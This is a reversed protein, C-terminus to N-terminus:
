YGGGRRKMRGGANNQKPKKQGIANALRDIEAMQEPHKAELLRRTMPDAQSIGRVADVMMKDMMPGYWEARFDEWWERVLAQGGNIADMSDLMNAM